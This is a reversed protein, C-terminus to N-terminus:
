VEGLSHIGQMIDVKKAAQEPDEGHFRLGVNCISLLSADPSATHKVLSLGLQGSCNYGVM